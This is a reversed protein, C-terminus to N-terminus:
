PRQSFAILDLSFLVIALICLSKARGLDFWEDKPIYLCEKTRSKLTKVVLITVVFVGVCKFEIM